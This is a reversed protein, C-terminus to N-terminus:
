RSPASGPPFGAQPAAPATLDDLIARGLLLLLEYAAWGIALGLILLSHQIGLQWLWDPVNGKWLGKALGLLPHLGFMATSNRALYALGAQGRASAKLLWERAHPWGSALWRVTTDPDILLARLGGPEKAFQAVAHLVKPDDIRKVISVAGAPRARRTLEAVDQAMGKLEDAKRTKVARRAAEAVAHAMADTVAGMRRAFKLLAAGLDAGPAATLVIGAASLAVIMEDTQEGKLFHGSQIVLDRVDGFVFLDAVVAGTLGAADEGQGTLAGHMGMQLNRAWSRRETEIGQRIVRLRDNNPDQALAEDVLVQAETLRNQQFLEHAEAAVDYPPLDNFAERAQVGPQDQWCVAVFALALALRVFSGAIPLLRWFWHWFWSRRM